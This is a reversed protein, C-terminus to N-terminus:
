IKIPSIWKYENFKKLIDIIWKSEGGIREIYIDIVEQINNTENIKIIHEGDTDSLIDLESLYLLEPYTDFIDSIEHVHIMNGLDIGLTEGLIKTTSRFNQYENFAKKGLPTLVFNANPKNVKM